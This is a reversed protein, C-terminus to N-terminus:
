CLSPFGKRGISPLLLSGLRGPLLAWSGVVTESLSSPLVRAGLVGMGALLKPCRRWFFIIFVGPKFCIKCNEMYLVWCGISILGTCLLAFCLDTPLLHIIGCINSCQTNMCLIYFLDSGPCLGSSHPAPPKPQFLKHCSCAAKILEFLLYIRQQHQLWDPQVTHALCSHLGGAEQSPVRKAPPSPPLHRQQREFLFRQTTLLRRM